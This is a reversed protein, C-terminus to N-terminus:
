LMSKSLKLRFYKKEIKKKMVATKIQSDQIGGLYKYEDKELQKMYEGDPVEIDDIDIM